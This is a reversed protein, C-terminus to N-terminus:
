GAAGALFRLVDAAAPALDAAGMAEFVGRYLEAVGDAVAQRNEETVAELLSEARAKRKLYGAAAGVASSVVAAVASYPVGLHVMFPDHQAQGEHGMKSFSIKEYDQATDLIEMSLGHGHEALFTWTAHYAATTLKRAREMLTPKDRVDAPLADHVDGWVHADTPADAPVKSAPSLARGPAQGAEVDAASAVRKGDVYHYERGLSDTKTGTFGARDARADELLAELIAETITPAAAEDPPTPPKAPPEATRAPRRSTGGHADQYEENDQEVQHWDRGQGQVYRQRSDVGLPIEIAATQAEQLKDRVVPSPAEAQVEVLECPGRGV